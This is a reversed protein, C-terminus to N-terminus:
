LWQGAGVVLYAVIFFEMLRAHVKLFRLVKVRREEALGSSLEYTQRFRIRAILPIMAGLFILLNSM